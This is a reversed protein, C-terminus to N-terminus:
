SDNISTEPLSRVRPRGRPRLTSEPNLRRDISEGWDEKGYSSGRKVSWRISALERDSLPENVRSVWNPLRPLPWRFLLEPSDEAQDVFSPHLATREVYRSAVFCHEDDQIPFSKFRGQYVHGQGSSGYHAHCRQTHTLTVWRLFNSMGGDETPQLVFHWHNPMLQYSLIQCRYHELGEALVREFAEYDAEKRFIERRTNGRNM